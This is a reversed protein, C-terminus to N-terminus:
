HKRRMMSVTLSLVFLMSLCERILLRNLSLVDTLDFTQHKSRVRKEREVEASPGFPDPTVFRGLNSGYYRNMAYDVGTTTDRYYTAFRETGPTRNEGYPYNRPQEAFFNGGDFGAKLRMSGLRDEQIVRESKTQPDVYRVLRGNWYVRTQIPAPLVWFAWTQIRFTEVLEGQAGYLYYEESGDPKKKYVRQNSPNYGYRETGFSGSASGLRNEIDLVSTQGPMQTLNGNNDYSYGSTTIRNNALSIALSSAPGSGKTLAQSTRNGFGDYSWSLGFATGTTAATLLRNLSDYSYNIEEGSLWDKEQTIQGNNQTASYTYGLDIRSNGYNTPMMATLRTLQFRSNYTRTEQYYNPQGASIGAFNQLGTLM